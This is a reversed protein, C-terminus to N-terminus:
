FLIPRPRFMNLRFVQQWYLLLIIEYLNRLLVFTMGCAWAERWHHYSLTKYAEGLHVLYHGLQPIDKWLIYNWAASLLIYLNCEFIFHIDCLLAESWMSRNVHQSMTDNSKSLFFFDKETQKTKNQKEKRKNIVVQMPMLFGKSGSTCLATFYLAAVVVVVLHCFPM